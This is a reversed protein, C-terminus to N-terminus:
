QATGVVLQLAHPVTLADTKVVLDYHAPLEHREVRVASSATVFVRAAVM